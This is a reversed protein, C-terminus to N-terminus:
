DHIKPQIEKRLQFIEEDEEDLQFFISLIYDISFKEIDWRLEECVQFIDEDSSMDNYFVGDVKLILFNNRNLYLKM